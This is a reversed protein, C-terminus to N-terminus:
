KPSPSRKGKKMEVCSFCPRGRSFLTECIAEVEMGLDEGMEFIETISLFSAYRFVSKEGRSSYEQGLPSDRPIICIILRGGPKLVRYAERLSKEPDLFCLSTIFFVSNFASERFPLREALGQVVETRRARAMMLPRLAADLGMDIRLASSFRGTGVGVELAPNQWKFSRLCSLEIEYVDLHEEYWRDYKEAIRDFEEWSM